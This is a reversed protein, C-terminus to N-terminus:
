SLHHILFWCFQISSNLRVGSNLSNIKSHKCSNTVLNKKLSNNHCYLYSSFLIFKRAFGRLIKSLIKSYTFKWVVFCNKKWKIRYNQRNADIFFSFFISKWKAINLFYDKFNFKCILIISFFSTQINLRAM